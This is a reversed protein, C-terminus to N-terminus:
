SLVGGATWSALRCWQMKITGRYNPDDLPHESVLKAENQHMRPDYIVHVFTAFQGRWLWFVLQRRESLDPLFVRDM